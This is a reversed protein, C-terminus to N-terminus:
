VCFTIIIILTNLLIIASLRFLTHLVRFARITTLTSSLIIASLGVLINPDSVSWM